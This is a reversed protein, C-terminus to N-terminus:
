YFLINVNLFTVRIFSVLPPTRCFEKAFPEKEFYISSIKEETDCLYNKENIVTDNGNWDIGIGNITDLCSIFANLWFLPKLEYM